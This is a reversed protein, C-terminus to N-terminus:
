LELSTYIWHSSLKVSSYLKFISKSKITATTSLVYLYSLLPFFVSFSRNAPFWAASKVALMAQVRVGRGDPLKRFIEKIRLPIVLVHQVDSGAFPM